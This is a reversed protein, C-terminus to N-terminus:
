LLKSIAEPMLHEMGIAHLRKRIESFSNETIGNKSVDKLISALETEVWIPLTTTVGLVEDLIELANRTKDALDLKESVVKKGDNYKLVYVNAERVSGVILPSHTSVIFNAEPFTKLLNPLFERQMSPHLHNEAEDLVVTFGGANARSFMYLQWALDIIASVGGSATELLFEDQGHNCIFVIEMNRIEFEEFGLSKPLLKRLVEQFGKYAQKQSEDSIMIAKPGDHVGHGQIAWGILANKMFFSASQTGAGQYRQISLSHVEDFAIQETKKAIPLNQLAEYRFVQRHSPVFLCNIHQQGQIEIQYTAQNHTPIRLTAASGQSYSIKGVENTEKNKDVGKFLRTFFEVMGTSKNKVPTSVQQIPWGKHQALLRLLTTKGSGNAGTLVTLRHHFEIDIKEFQQWTNVSLSSFKTM